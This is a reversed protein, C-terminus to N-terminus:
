KLRKLFNIFDAIEINSDSIKDNHTLNVLYGLDLNNNNVFFKLAKIGSSNRLKKYKLEVPIIKNKNIIFDIETGTKTRFYYIQERGLTNILENLIFNEFLAGSDNRNKMRNFNQIMQNRVGTDFLFIKKMKSIQSRINTYYPPILHIISSLIFHELYKEAKKRPMGLTNSIEELNLLGSIQNSVIVLLDNYRLVDDSGSIYRIDKKLYTNVYEKLLTKKIEIDQTLVIEPLGGYVLYEDLLELLDMRKSEPMDSKEFFPLLNEQKFNIFEEFILPTMNFGVKRGVLSDSFKGKVEFLFSGTVILKVKDRHLDYLYKLFNTPEQLYQIEDILFYSKKKENIIYKLLEKPSKSLDALIDLDELNFQFINKEDIGRKLLEDKLLYLMTTKGVRRPGSIIIIEDRELWPIITKLISRNKVM